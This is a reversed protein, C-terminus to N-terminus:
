DASHPTQRFLRCRHEMNACLVALPVHQKHSIISVALVVMSELLKRHMCGHLYTVGVEIIRGKPFGGGLAADLTLCGTSIWESRCVISWLM